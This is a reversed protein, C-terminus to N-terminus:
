HVQEGLLISSLRRFFTWLRYFKNNRNFSSELAFEFAAESDLKIGSEHAVGESQGYGKYDWIFGNRNPISNLKTAYIFSDHITGCNGHCFLITPYKKGYQSGNVTSDQVTKPLPLICREGTVRSM